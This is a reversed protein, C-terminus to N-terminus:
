VKKKRRAAYLIGLPVGCALVILVVLIAWPIFLTNDANGGQESQLEITTTMMNENIVVEKTQTQYVGSLDEVRVLATGNPYAGLNVTFDGGSSLWGYECKNLTSGWWVVIWSNTMAPVHSKTNNDVVNVRLEYNDYGWSPKLILTIPVTELVTYSDGVLLSINFTEVSEFHSYAQSRFRLTVNKRDSDYMPIYGAGIVSVRDSGQVGVYTNHYPSYLGLVIYAEEQYYLIDRDQVLTTIYTGSHSSQLPTVRDLGIKVEASMNIWEQFAVHVLKNEPNYRGGVDWASILVDGVYSSNLGLHYYGDSIRQLEEKEMQLGWSFKLSVGNLQEGTVSDVVTVILWGEARAILINFAFLLVSALVLALLVSSSIRKM